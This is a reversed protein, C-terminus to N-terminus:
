AAPQGTYFPLLKECTTRLFPILGYILHLVHSFDLM